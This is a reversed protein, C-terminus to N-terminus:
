LLLWILLLLIINVIVTFIMSFGSLIMYFGYLIMYFWKSDHLFLIFDYWFWIFWLFFLIFDCQFYGGHVTYKGTPAELGWIHIEVSGWGWFQFFSLLFSFYFNSSPALFRAELNERQLFVSTKLVLKLICPDFFYSLISFCGFIALFIKQIKKDFFKLIYWIQCSPYFIM